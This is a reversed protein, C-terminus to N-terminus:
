RSPVSRPDRPDFTVEIEKWFEYNEPRLMDFPQGQTVALLASKQAAAYLPGRGSSVVKPPAALTGDRNLYIRVIVVIEDPDKVNEPPHWRQM